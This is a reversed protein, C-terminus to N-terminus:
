RAPSLYVREAVHAMHFATIAENLEVPVRPDYLLSGSSKAATCPKQSVTDSVADFLDMALM